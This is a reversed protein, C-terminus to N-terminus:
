RGLIYEVYMHVCLCASYLCRTSPKSASRTWKSAVESVTFCLQQRTEVEHLTGNGSARHQWLVVRSYPTSHIIYEVRCAAVVPPGGLNTLGDTKTQSGPSPKSDPHRAPRGQSPMPCPGRTERPQPQASSGSDAHSADSSLRTPINEPARM